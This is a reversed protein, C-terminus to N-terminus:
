TTTMSNDHLHFGLQGPEGTTLVPQHGALLGLTRAQRLLANAGTDLSTIPHKRASADIGQGTYPGRGVLRRQRDAQRSPAFAAPDRMATSRQEPAQVDRGGIGDFNESDGGSPHPQLTHVVVAALQQGM